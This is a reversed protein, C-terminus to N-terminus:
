RLSRRGTDGFFAQAKRRQSRKRPETGKCARCTEVAGLRRHLAGLGGCSPCTAFRHARILWALLALVARLIAGGTGVDHYAATGGM